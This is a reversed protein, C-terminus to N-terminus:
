GRSTGRRGGKTLSLRLEDFQLAAAFEPRSPDITRKVCQEIAHVRQTVTRREVRLASAASVANGRAGLFARLTKCLADDDTRLGRIPELYIERLSRSATEDRLIASLVLVDRYRTLPAHTVLGVRLAAQAQRHSLRLGDLEAQWEGVALLLQDEAIKGLIDDLDAAVPIRWFRLWAWVTHHGPRVRLLESGLQDAIRRMARHAPAGHAIIALHWGEFSYDLDSPDIHGGALLLRVKQARLDEPSDAIRQLEKRHAHAVEMSLRDIQESQRRFVDELLGVPVAAAEQRIFESLVEAGILYRRQVTEIAVGVRAARCAQAILAEPIARRQDLDAGLGELTWKLATDIASRLGMAYEAEDVRLRVPARTEIRSLTVSAIESRRAIL